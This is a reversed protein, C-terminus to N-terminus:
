RLMFHRPKTLFLKLQIRSDGSELSGGGDALKCHSRGYALCGPELRIQLTLDRCRLRSRIWRALRITWRCRSPSGRNPDCGRSSAQKRRAAVSVRGSQTAM